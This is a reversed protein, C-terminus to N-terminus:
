RRGERVRGSLRAAHAITGHTPRSERELDSKVRSYGDPHGRPLSLEKMPVQRLSAVANLTAVTSKPCVEAAWAVVVRPCIRQSEESRVFSFREMPCRVPLDDAPLSAVVPNPSVGAVIGQVSTVSPIPKGSSAPVIEKSAAIVDVRKPTPRTRVAEVSPVPAIDKAPSASGVGQVTPVASVRFVDQSTARTSVGAVCFLVVHCKRAFDHLLRAKPPSGVKPSAQRSIMRPHSRSIVFGRSVSASGSM